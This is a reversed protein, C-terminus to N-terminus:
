FRGGTVLRLEEVRLLKLLLFYVAVAAPVAAATVALPGYPALAERLLLAALASAAAALAPRLLPLDALPSFGARRNLEALFALAAAWSSLSTALMLGGAGMSGMFALC